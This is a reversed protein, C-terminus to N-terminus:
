LRMRKPFADKYSFKLIFFAGILSPLIFNLIWMTSVLCVITLSNVGVIGFLYVSVSGKLAVDFIVFTPVLSAIFYMTSIVMMASLYDVEVGFLLLLFYFQFSFVMYRMLSLGFVRIQLSKSASKIKNLVSQISYGRISIGKKQMSFLTIFGLVFIIGSLRLIKVMPIALDYDKMFFYLGVLGFTTTVLMQYANNLLNLFLISPREKSQYYVVKAAYDGIRNPTILSATLSALNQKASEIFSISSISAVLTKWKTIELLWNVFSLSLVIVINKLTFVQNDNLFKFLTKLDLEPNKTLENFCYYFAGIVISLKILSFFFQKTKYPLGRIM